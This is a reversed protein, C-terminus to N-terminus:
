PELAIKGISHGEELWRHAAAAEALPFIRTVELLPKTEFWEYMAQNARAFSDGKMFDDASFTKITVCKTYSYIDMKAKGAVYGYVCMEGFSRLAAPDRDLTDGGVGNVSYDAGAGATIERVAAVYDTGSVDITHQAGIDRCYREQEASRCIGIVRNGNDCAIQTLVSGFGGAAGHIMVIAGTPIKMYQHHLIWALRFNTLYVLGQAFSVRDPLALLDAAPVTVGNPFTYPSLPASVYQAYCGGSLVLGLVRQGPKFSTVNTGVTHITGAVERGPFHPLRMPLYYRGRRQETDAYILGALGVAIVVEDAGPTPMPREILKLNEPPGTEDLRIAKMRAM